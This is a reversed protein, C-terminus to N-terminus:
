VPLLHTRQIDIKNCFPMRNHLHFEKKQRGIATTELKEWKASSRLMLKCCVLHLLSFQLQQAGERHVPLSLCLFYALIGFPIENEELM